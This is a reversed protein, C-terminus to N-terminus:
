CADSLIACLCFILYNMLTHTLAVIGRDDFGMRYFVQLSCWNVPAIACLCFILSMELTHAGSLAVIGRDDSGM